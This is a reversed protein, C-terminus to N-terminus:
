HISKTDYASHRGEKLRDVVYRMPDFEFLDPGIISGFMLSSLNKIELGNRISTLINNVCSFGRECDATSIPISLLANSLPKLNDNPQGFSAKFLAFGDEAQSVDVRLQTAL